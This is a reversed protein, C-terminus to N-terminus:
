HKVNYTMIVDYSKAYNDRIVHLFHLCDKHFKYLKEYMIIGYMTIGYM